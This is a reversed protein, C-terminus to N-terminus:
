CADLRFSEKRLVGNRKCDACAKNEPKKLLERLTRTHRESTAKDQRSMHYLHLLSQNIQRHFQNIYMVFGFRKWYM